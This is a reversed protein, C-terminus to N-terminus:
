PEQSISFSVITNFVNFITSPVSVKFKSSFPFMLSPIVSVLLSVMMSLSVKSFPPLLYLLSTSYAFTPLWVAGQRKHKWFPKTNTPPPAASTACERWNASTSNDTRIHPITGCFHPPSTRKALKRGGSKGDRQERM